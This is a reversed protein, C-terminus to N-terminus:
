PNESLEKKKKKSKKKKDKSDKDKKKSTKKKKKLVIVEDENDGSLEQEMFKKRLEELNQQDQDEIDENLKGDRSKDSTFDFSELKTPKKLTIKQSTKIDNPTSHKRVRVSINSGSSHIIEDSIVSVKKKRKSKEINKQVTIKEAGDKMSPTYPPDNYDESNQNNRGKELLPEENKLYFPNGERDIDVKDHVNLPATDHENQIYTTDDQSFIDSHLSDSDGELSEDQDSDELMHHQEMIIKLDTDNLFPTSLDMEPDLELAQQTGHAIPNLEYSNFLSPLIHTVLMPLQGESSSLSEKCLKLLELFEFSREQVVFDSSNGLIDLFIVIEDLVEKVEDLSSGHTNAWSSFIKIVAPISIAQLEVDQSLGKTIFFKVLENGNEIYSSFEGLCWICASLISGLQQDITPIFLISIINAITSDRVDPVRILVNKLQEGIDYGLSKDSMDQSIIALDKLVANYWEFDPINKYNETSSIKLITRVMKIKYSEPILIKIEREPNFLSKNDNVSITDEDVFQRLLLSVVEKINNEDVIGILLELVKSRISIDIDSLLKIILDSYQGIFNANIKGIKYFLVCSIYRLNADSSTSFSYLTQLCVKATSYDDLELMQGKVICNISEYLVSTAQTSEMLELMKPLLKPRLKEEIISLNKFLKLLRIIIWNNEITTLIEYLLPSLVVFPKPNKKSLECIVSVTASVVSMDDDQLMEVFKDFNDRLAEPYELFVKFLATVAKKRVYPRSSTLMTFLDDTVDAALSPTIMSTLGSLAIGVKVIDNGGGYKLDKRLLNTALMLVDSDEHFCQSAALYGVRKQQLKSSSMVELVQFNAWTMDFGYMELYALKLIANTKLTMDPSNAEKRCESLAETFFKELKEPTENNSRIGKILDKLSKEFFFGFPRLRQKVDDASPAYLSTM